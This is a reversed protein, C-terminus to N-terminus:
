KTSFLPAKASSPNTCRCQSPFPNACFHSAVRTLSDFRSSAFDLGVRGVGRSVGVAKHGPHPATIRHCPLGPIYLLAARWESKARMMHSGSIASM